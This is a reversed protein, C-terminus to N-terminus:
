EMGSVGMVDDELVVELVDDAEMGKVWWMLVGGVRSPDATSGMVSVSLSSLSGSVAGRAFLTLLTSDSLASVGEWAAPAAAM